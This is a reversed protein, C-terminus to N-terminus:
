RSNRIMRIIYNDVPALDDTLVPLDSIVDGTWLHALYGGLEPDNDM